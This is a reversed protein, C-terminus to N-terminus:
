QDPYQYKAGKRKPKADFHDYFADLNPAGRRRHVLNGFELGFRCNGYPKEHQDKLRQGLDPAVDTVFGVKVVVGWIQRDLSCYTSRM